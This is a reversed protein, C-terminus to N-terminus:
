RHKAKHCVLLTHGTGLDDVTKELVFGAAEIFCLFDDYKYFRSNGNAMVTFYLSFAALCEEGAKFRQRDVLPELIFLRAEDSMAQHVRKLISIIESPSFCDLFQSMWWAEAQFAPLPEDKLLDQAHTKVRDGFGAKALNKDLTVCQEPLDVVTIHVNPEYECARTAWKGTNGGLEVLNKVGYGFVIPLAAQYAEDSYYHDFAFWSSCAPEPLSQLAPYITPWDGFVKLGSPKGERFATELAALGEYCVDRTFNFNVRVLPDNILFYAVKSLLYRDEKKDILGFAEGAVLLTDLAYDSLSTANLLEERTLGQKVVNALSSLVGFNILCSATQFAFPAVSLSHAKELAELASPTKTRSMVSM